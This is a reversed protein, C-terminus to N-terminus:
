WCVRLCLLRCGACVLSLRDAVSGSPSAQHSKSIECCLCCVRVRRLVCLLRTCLAISNRAHVPQTWTSCASLILMHQLTCRVVLNAVDQLAEMLASAEEVKRRGEFDFPLTLAALVFYGARRLHSALQLAQLVPHSCALCAGKQTVLLSCSLQASLVMLQPFASNM